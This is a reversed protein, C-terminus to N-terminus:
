TWAAGRVHPGRRAEAPEPPRGGELRLDRVAVEFCNEFHLATEIGDGRLVTSPGAGHVVVRTRSSVKLTKRVDFTGAQFCLEGGGVPLSNIADQLDDGPYVTVTCTGNGGELLSNFKPRADLVIRADLDVLALPAFVHQTRGLARGQAAGGREEAERVSVGWWDGIEFTGAGPTVKAYARRARYTADKAVGAAKFSGDWRRVVM